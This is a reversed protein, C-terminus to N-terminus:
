NICFEGYTPSMLDYCHKLYDYNMDTYDMVYGDHSKLMNSRVMSRLCEYPQTLLYNQLRCNRCYKTHERIVTKVADYRVCARCPKVKYGNARFEIDNGFNSIFNKETEMFHKMYELLKESPHCNKDDVYLGHNSFFKENQERKEEEDELCLEQHFNRKNYEFNPEM